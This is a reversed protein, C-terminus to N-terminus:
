MAAAWGRTMVFEVWDAPTTEPAPHTMPRALGAKFYAWAALSSCVVHGPPSPGWKESAWIRSLGIADAADKAIADWDYPVGIAAKVAGCVANRQDATKPQAANTVTWGSALYDRADRWGVRGARGEICWTVGGTVHHVVAIHGDLNPQGRLAAAFRILVGPLGGGRVALVDGPQVTTVFAGRQAKYPGPTGHEAEYADRAERTWNAWQWRKDPWMEVLQKCRGVADIGYTSKGTTGEYM